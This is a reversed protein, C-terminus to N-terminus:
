SNSANGDREEIWMVHGAVGNHEIKRIRCILEPHKDLLQVRISAQARVSHTAPVFVTKRQDVITKYLDVWRRFRESPKSRLNDPAVEWLPAEQELKNEQKSTTTAM